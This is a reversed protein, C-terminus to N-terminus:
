GKFVVPQGMATWLKGKAAKVLLAYLDKHHIQFEINGIKSVLSEMQRAVAAMEPSSGLSEEAMGARGGSAFGDMRRTAEANMIFAGRQVQAVISDSRETGPGRIVGDSDLYAGSNIAKFLGPSREYTSRPVIREGNSVRVVEGGTNFAPLPTSDVARLQLLGLAGIAAIMWPKDLVKTIAVATNMLVNARAMSKESEAARRKAARMRAEYAQEAQERDRLLATRQQESISDSALREDIASLRRKREADINAMERQANNRQIQAISGLAQGTMAAAEQIRALKLQHAAEEEMQEVSRGQRKAELEMQLASIKEALRRREEDTTVATYETELDRLERMLENISGPIPKIDLQFGKTVKDWNVDGISEPDLRVPISPREPGSMLAIRRDIEAQIMTIQRLTEAGQAVTDDSFSSADALDQYKTQLESLKGSLKDSSTSRNDDSDVGDAQKKSVFDVAAALDRFTVVQGKSRTFVADSNPDRGLREMTSLYETLATRTDDIQRKLQDPGAGPQQFGPMTTPQFRQGNENIDRLRDALRGLVQYQENAAGTLREFEERTQLELIREQQAVYDKLKDTNVGIVNGYRDVEMATAPLQTELEKLKNRLEAQETANLNTKSSLESVRDALPVVNRQLSQVVEAQEIYARSLRPTRDLMDDLWSLLRSGADIWPLLGEAVHAGYRRTMGEVQDTLAGLEDAYRVTIAVARESMQTNLKDSANFLRDIEDRGAALLPILDAYGRGLLQAAMANRETENQIDSLGKIVEPILEGTSRLQGDVDRLEIGLSNWAKGAEGTGEKIAPLQRTFAASATAISDFSVGVQGAVFDYRQLDRTAIGTRISMKDIKDGYEATKNALDAIDRVTRMVWGSLNELAKAALVGAGVQIANGIRDFNSRINVQARGTTTDLSKVDGELRNVEVSSNRTNIDIKVRVDSM